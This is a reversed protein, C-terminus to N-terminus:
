SDDFPILVHNLHLAHKGNGIVGACTFHLADLDETARFATLSTKTINDNAANFFCHRIAVDFFAFDDATHDNAHLFFNTAAVAAIDLEVLVSRHEDVGIACRPARTDETRDCTLKAILLVHLDHRQCRFRQLPTLSM